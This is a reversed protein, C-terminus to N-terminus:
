WGGLLYVDNALIGGLMDPACDGPGYISYNLHAYPGSHCAGGDQLAFVKYGMKSAELACKEIPNSRTTFNGDLYTANESELSPIVHTINSDKFCGLSIYEPASQGLHTGYTNLVHLTM